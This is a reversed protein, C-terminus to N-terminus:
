EGGLKQLESMDSNSDRKEKIQTRILILAHCYSTLHNIMPPRAQALMCQQDLTKDHCVFCQYSVAPNTVTQQEMLM